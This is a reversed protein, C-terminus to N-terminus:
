VINIPNFSKPSYIKISTDTNKGDSHDDESDSDSPIAPLNHSHAHGFIFLGILNITLGIFGVILLLNPNHIEKQEILREVAEVV